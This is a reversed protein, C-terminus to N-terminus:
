DFRGTITGCSECVTHIEDRADALTIEQTTEGGCDPCERLTETDGADQPAGVALARVREDGENVGRQFEGPGFRALEGASVAVDGDLTRFTVTGALVYFVEEQAAHAHFGYSFSYGPALEYVNMAADSLGLADTLPLSRAAPGMRSDLDDLRVTRM